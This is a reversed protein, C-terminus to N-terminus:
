SVKVPAVASTAPVPGAAWLCGSVLPFDTDRGEFEVWVSAGVPPVTLFGVSSGAYPVCPMAWSLQGDGLVAPVSVQMRGIQLPDINQEVKGRYKGLFQKM